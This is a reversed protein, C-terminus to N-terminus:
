KNIITKMTIKEEYNVIFEDFRMEQHVKSFAEFKDNVNKIVIQRESEGFNNTIYFVFSKM